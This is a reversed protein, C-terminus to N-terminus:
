LTGLLPILKQRVLLYFDVKGARIRINVTQNSEQRISYAATEWALFRDKLPPCVYQYVCNKSNSSINKKLSNIKAIDNKTKFRINIVTSDRDAM